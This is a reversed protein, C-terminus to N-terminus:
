LVPAPQAWGHRAIAPAGRIMDIRAGAIDARNLAGSEGGLGGTYRGFSELYSMNFGDAIRLECPADARAQFFFGTSYGWSGADGTHPMVIAGSQEAEGACRAAVSKVAATIGTNIPGQTNAYKIEFRYWGSARPTFNSRLESSPLGWDKFKAVGDIVRMASGDNSSLTILESDPVCSERSPLSTLGTDEFRQTLSYCETGASPMTGDEFRAVATNTAGAGNAANAANATLQQGNKFIQVTAGPEVGQWTVSVGDTERTAGLMVPSPPAFVARRQAPTLQRSDDFPITTIAPAAGSVQRLTVRLERPGGPRLRRLDVTTGTLREGNLSVTGAELWGTPPWERPLELTVNLSAGGMHVNRLAVSRQGGFLTRALHGPLWPKVTLWGDHVEL